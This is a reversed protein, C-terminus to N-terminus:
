YYMYENLIADIYRDSISWTFNKYKLETLGRLLEAETEADGNILGYYISLSEVAVHAKGEEILNAVASSIGSFKYVMSTKKEYDFKGIEDNYIKANYFIKINDASSDENAAESIISFPVGKVLVKGNEDVINCKMAFFTGGAFGAPLADQIVIKSSVRKMIAIDDNVQKEFPAVYFNGYAQRTIKISERYAAIKADLDEVGEIIAIGDVMYKHPKYAKGFTETYVPEEEAFVITDKPWTEILDIGDNIAADCGKRIHGIIDIFFDTQNTIFNAGYTYTKSKQDASIKKPKGLFTVEFNANETFYRECNKLLAMWGDYRSFDDYSGTWPFGSDLAKTIQEYRSSSNEQAFSPVIGSYSNDSYSNDYDLNRVGSLIEKRANYFSMIENKRFKDQEYYMSLAYIYQKQSEYKQGAAEFTTNSLGSKAAEKLANQAFSKEREEKLSTIKAILEDREKNTVLGYGNDRNAQIEKEQADDAEKQKKSALEEITPLGTIRTVIYKSNRRYVTLNIPAVQSDAYSISDDNFQKGIDYDSGDLVTNCLTKLFDVTRLTSSFPITITFSTGDKKAAKKIDKAKKEVDKQTQYTVPKKLDGGSVVVQSFAKLGIFLNLACVLLLYKKM